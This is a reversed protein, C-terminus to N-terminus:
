EERKFSMIQEGAFNKVTISLRLPCDAEHTANMVQQMLNTDLAMILVRVGPTCLLEIIQKANM